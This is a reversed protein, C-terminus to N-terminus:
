SEPLAVPRLDAVPIQGQDQKSLVELGMASVDRRVVRGNEFYTWIDAVGDGNLDREEKLVREGDQSTDYYVWLDPRGRSGTDREVKAIRGNEYHGRYTMTGSGAEDREERVMKDDTYYYVTTPRGQGHTDVDRRLLKGEKFYSWTDVRGDGKSAEEQRVIEGSKLPNYYIWLDPVGDGNIDRVEVNKFPSSSPPVAPASKNVSAVANNEHTPSPRSVTTSTTKSNGQPPPNTARQPEPVSASAAIIQGELARQRELEQEILGELQQDKQTEKNVQAIVREEEAGITFMGYVAGIALGGLAGFHAFPGALMGGWHAGKAMSEMIHQGGRGSRQAVQPQAPAPSNAAARQSNNPYNPMPYTGPPYAVAECGALPVGTLLLGHFSAAIKRPNSM